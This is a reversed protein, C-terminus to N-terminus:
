GRGPVPQWKHSSPKSSGRQRHPALGPTLPLPTDLGPGPTVKRASEQFHLSNSVVNTGPKPRLVSTDLCPGPMARFPQRLGGGLHSWPSMEKPARAHWGSHQARGPGVPNTLIRIGMECRPPGISLYMTRLSNCLRSQLQLGRSNM